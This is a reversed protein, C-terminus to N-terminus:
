RIPHVGKDLFTDVPKSANSKILSPMVIAAHEQTEWSSFKQQQCSDSGVISAAFTEKHPFLPFCKSTILEERKSGVVVDPAAQAVSVRHNQPILPSMTNAPRRGPAPRMFALSSQHARLRRWAPEATPDALPASVSSTPASTVRAASRWRRACSALSLPRSIAWLACNGSLWPLAIEHTGEEICRVIARAVEEATSMPQSFTVDAVRELEEGFFGTDVLGPSVVSVTVGSGALEDRLARSFSRLGAKSAGYTVQLRMPVMGALSAVNVISGPKRILPAAARCLVVPAALNVTIMDCLALPNISLLPGRHHLGANNVVIDLAGMREIVRAPLATVSPLDNMDCVFAEGGLEQAADRLTKETRAVLAVRTGRAALQRATALGIGASGGTVLAIKQELVHDGQGISKERVFRRHSLGNPQIEKIRVKRM